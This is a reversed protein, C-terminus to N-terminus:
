TTEGTLHNTQETGPWTTNLIDLQHELAFLVTMGSTAKKELQIGRSVCLQRLAPALSLLTAVNHAGHIGHGAVMPMGHKRVYCTLAVGRTVPGTQGPELRVFPAGLLLRALSPGVTGGLDLPSVVAQRTVAQSVLSTHSYILQRNESRMEMPIGTLVASTPMCTKFDPLWLCEWRDFMATRVPCTFLKFLFLTNCSALPNGSTSLGREVLRQRGISGETSKNAM